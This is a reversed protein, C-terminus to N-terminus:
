IKFKIKYQIILKISIAYITIKNLKHTNLFKKLITNKNIM